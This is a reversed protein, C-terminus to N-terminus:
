VVCRVSTCGVDRRTDANEPGQKKKRTFFWQWWTCFENEVMEDMRKAATAENLREITNHLEERVDEVDSHERIIERKFEILEQQIQEVKSGKSSGMGWIQSQAMAVLLVLITLISIWARLGHERWGAM